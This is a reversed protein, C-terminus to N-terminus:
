ELGLKKQLHLSARITGYRTLFPHTKNLAM